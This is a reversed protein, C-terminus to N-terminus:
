LDYILNSVTVNGMFQKYKKYLAHDDPLSFGYVIATVGLIDDIIIEYKPVYLLPESHSLTVNSEAENVIWSTLKLKFTCDHM